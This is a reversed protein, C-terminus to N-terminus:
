NSKLQKNRIALAAIEDFYPEDRIMDMFCHSTRKDRYEWYPDAGAEILLKAVKCRRHYAEYGCAILPTCHGDVANVDAGQKILFRILNMTGYKVAQHLAMLKIHKTKRNIDVGADLLLSFAKIPPKNKMVILEVLEDWMKNKLFDNAGNKLFLRIFRVSGGWEQACTDGDIDATNVDAGYKILFKATKYDDGAFRLASWGDVDCANIDCGEAILRRLIRRPRHHRVADILPLGSEEGFIDFDDESRKKLKKAHKKKSM